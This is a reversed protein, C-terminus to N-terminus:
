FSSKLVKFVTLIAHLEIIQASTSPFECSYVHSGIVYVEKGYLPQKYICYLFEKHSAYM